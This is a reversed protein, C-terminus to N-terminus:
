KSPAPAAPKGHGPCDCGCLDPCKCASTCAALFLVVLAAAILKKM